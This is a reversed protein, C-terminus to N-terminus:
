SISWFSTLPIHLHFAKKQLSHQKKRFSSFSFKSYSDQDLCTQNVIFSSSHPHTHSSGAWVSDIRTWLLVCNAENNPSLQVAVFQAFTILRSVSFFIREFRNKLFGTLAQNSLVTKSIVDVLRLFFSEEWMSFLNWLIARKLSM